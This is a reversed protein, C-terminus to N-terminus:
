LHLSQTLYDKIEFLNIEYLSADGTHIYIFLKKSFQTDRSADLFSQAIREVMKKRPIQIRGRGTGILPISIDQLEGKRILYDWLNTLSVDIMGLDSYANKTDNWRSMAVFYYSNGHSKVLAVTGVPYERPKGFDRANEESPIGALSAEIQQDIEVTSGEFYDRTLQGQLSNQSILGGSVDTDFTTSSSIVIGGTAKLVDGIRVEVCLDRNPVKYVIRSVPRVRAAAHIIGAVLIPFVAFKSYEDRQYIKLFDLIEVFTWIVGVASFVRAFGSGSFLAYRWFSRTAISRFFYGM